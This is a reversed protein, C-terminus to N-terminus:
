HRHPVRKLCLSTYRSVEETPVGRERQESSIKPLSDTDQEISSAWALPPEWPLPAKSQEASTTAPENLRLVMRAPRQREVTRSLSSATVPPSMAAGAEVEHQQRDLRRKRDATGEM